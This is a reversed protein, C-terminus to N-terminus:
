SPADDGSNEAESQRLAIADALQAAVEGLWTSYAGDARHYYSGLDHYLIRDLEADGLKEARLEDLEAISARLEDLDRDDIGEQLAASPNDHVSTWSEILNAAFLQYLHPCRERWDVQRSGISESGTL